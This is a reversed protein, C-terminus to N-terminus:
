RGERRAVGRGRPSLAPHPPRGSEALAREIMELMTDTEKLAQDDWFRLVRIGSRGLERERERDYELRDPM